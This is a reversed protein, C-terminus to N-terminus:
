VALSLLGGFASNHSEEGKYNIQIPHGTVDRGRLFKILCKGRM